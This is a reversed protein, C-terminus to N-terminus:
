RNPPSSTAALGMFSRQTHSPVVHVAQVVLLVGGDFRASAPIAYSGTRFDSITKPPVLCSVASPMEGPSPSVQSHFIALDVQVSTLATPAGGPREHVAMTVSTLRPRIMMAPPTSGLRWAGSLPFMVSTQSHFPATEVQVFTEGGTPHPPGCIGTPVQSVARLLSTAM